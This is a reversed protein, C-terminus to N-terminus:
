EQRQSVPLLRVWLVGWTLNWFLVMKRCRSKLPGRSEWCSRCDPLCSLGASTSGGSPMVVLALSLEVERGLRPKTSGDSPVDLRVRKFGGLRWVHQRWSCRSIARSTHESCRVHFWTRKWFLSIGAVIQREGSVLFSSAPFKAGIWGHLLCTTCCISMVTRGRVAFRGSRPM